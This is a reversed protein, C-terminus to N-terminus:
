FDQGISFRFREIEDYKKYHIPYGWSFTIPGIPSTWAIGYGASTRLDSDYLVKKYDKLKPTGLKGWDYFLFGSVKYKKPIGVPFNLQFTGDLEWNGGYAYLSNVTSRAGVGSYDFGRLTDGGLMFRDSRSLTTKNLAKIHGANMAIGFQWENDWFSFSQKASFVNKLYSKNGGLGAYDTSFSLAYGNRTENVYDITQDRYSFTNGIKFINYNGVGDLLKGSLKSSINSMTEHKGSWRVSHYFNDNYNWGLKFGLGLTDIDYGYISNRRYQSYYLDIGGLLDRGWLYPEVFSVSYNNQVKSITSSFGLTQGKGMFNTERIGFELFGSNMSSWGAGLSLEGTSKEKVEVVINVKDKVNQVPVPSITVNEFFGTEMLKQKSSIFKASNFVDQEDFDLQKRIVRDYTRTNNKIDIKNIFVRKSAKIVFNIDVISTDAHPIKETDINVFAFGLEGMKTEIDTTTKKVLSDKYFNGSKLLILDNLKSTDLDTIENKLTVNGIKYRNGEKLNFTVFYNSQTLDMKTNQSLIEFDLFGNEIYFNRLLEADYLVRDEDYTDFVELLKWWSYEKSMIVDILKYSTFNNNGTFVIKDIYSKKNENIEFIVDYQNDNREITKVDVTAKLLGMRKYLLKIADVDKQLSYKNLIDTTKTTTTKKLDDLKIKDYGEFAVQRVTPYETLNVNLVNKDINLSVNKFYGSSYLKLTIDNLENDGIKDYSDPAIINKVMESNLRKLGSIKIDNIKAYILNPYIFCFLFLFIKSYFRM